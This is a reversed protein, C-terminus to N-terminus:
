LSQKFYIVDMGFNTFFIMGLVEAVHRIMEWSELM